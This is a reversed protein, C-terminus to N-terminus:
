FISCVRSTTETERLTKFLKELKEKELASLEQGKKNIIDTFANTTTSNLYIMGNKVGFAIPRFEVKPVQAGGNKKQYALQHMTKNKNSQSMASYVSTKGTAKPTTSERSEGTARSSGSRGRECGRLTETEETGSLTSADVLVIGVRPDVYGIFDKKSSFPDSVDALKEYLDTPPTRKARQTSVLEITNSGETYQIVLGGGEVAPTAKRPHIPPLQKSDMM